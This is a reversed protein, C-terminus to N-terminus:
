PELVVKIAGDKKARFMEYAYPAETLSIRHTVFDGVGFPDDDRMVLPLLQETWRRVNCQGFRVTIQKDFLDGLPFAHMAGVYVGVVSLTGGRRVVGMASHLGALRDPQLKTKQLVRDVASGDAEMGVCDVSTDVGRGKTLEIIEDTVDDTQTLDVVEAGHRHAMELREPVKDVGIVRSAGLVHAARVTMQGVPGLGFVAVTSGETVDGYVVGQWATPVVDSLFLYTHDPHEGPVKIPGDDALPVRMYEAQGGAVGGYLHTYGFLSGGKRVSTNQTTECQSQLGARCMDCHGCAINFPVVVRDGAKLKEVGVGVEEVVGMPEHGIVDGPVMGPVLGGYLHLDSGCIATSTIRVVADTPEELRPDPVEEVRVDQKGHWVVARM